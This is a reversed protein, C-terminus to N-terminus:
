DHAPKEDHHAKLLADAIRSLEGPTREKEQFSGRMLNALSDTTAAPATVTKGAIALRVAVWDEAEM